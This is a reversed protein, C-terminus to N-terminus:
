PNAEFFAQAFGAPTIADRLRANEKATQWTSPIARGLPLPRKMPAVFHGWICTPKHGRDADGWEWQYFELRSPGLYRRLLARPNELAWWRPQYIAVARLCADVVSLAALLEDGEAPYRNRAYSFASCPPAALIGHVPITEAPILRVDEPLDVRRVAYGAARYPESWAGSGACLDWIVKM